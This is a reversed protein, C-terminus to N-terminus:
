KRANAAAARVQAAAPDGDGITAPAGPRQNFLYGGAKAIGQGSMAAARWGLRVTTAAAAAGLADIRPGGGAIALAISIAHTLLFATVISMLMFPALTTMNAASADATLADVRAKLLTLMFGLIVYVIIPLLAYGALSAIWGDVVRSTLNFLACCLVIPGIALLIFMTMKGIMLLTVAIACLICVVALVVIALIYMGVATIGGADVMTKVVAIGSNWIDTLGQTVSSGSSGDGGCDSGGTSQCVITAMGDPAELLPKVILPQYTAWSVILSYCIFARGFRWVFTGATMQARGFLMEYGWWVVYVTLGALFLPGLYGALTTYM